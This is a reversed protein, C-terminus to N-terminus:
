LTRQYKTSCPAVRIACQTTFLVSTRAGARKEATSLLWNQKGVAWLAHDALKAVRVAEGKAAYWRQAELFRPMVEGELQALIREAMRIRWPVVRDRFFSSWDDFLVLVPLDDRQLREEHWHPM